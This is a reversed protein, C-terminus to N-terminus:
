ADGPKDEDAGMASTILALVWGVVVCLLAQWWNM